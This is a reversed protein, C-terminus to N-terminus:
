RGTKDSVSAGKGLMEADEDYAVGRTSLYDGSIASDAGGRFLARGNDPLASRGGAIRIRAHPLAFRFIAVTRRIEDYSLKRAHELPTGAIPTLINVPVSTVGLRALEAAMSIRDNMSEGAGIIGGSCVRLGVSRAAEITKVKQDYTHTTCLKPFFARSSELNNHYRKLGAQKLQKLTQESVIGLSACLEMPGDKRSNFWRCLEDTEEQTPRVCSTVASFASIGAKEAARWAHDYEEESILKGAPMLGAKTSQACFACDEGCGGTKAAIIACLEPSGVYKKALADAADCLKALNVRKLRRLERETLRAGSEIKRVYGDICDLRKVQSSNKGWVYPLIRPAALSALVAWLADTPIFVLAYAVILERVDVDQGLHYKMLIGLYAVGVAYVTVLNVFGSAIRRLLSNTGRAYVLGGVFCGLAFGIIYGFTPQLVYGFGGGATFIPVGVLGLVIYIVISLTGWKYGLLLMALNCFAFQMTVPVSGIPIKIFAGIASLATFLAILALLKTKKLTTEKM